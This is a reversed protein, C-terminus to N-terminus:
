PNVPLGPAVPTAPTAPLPNKAAEEEAKKIAERVEEPM